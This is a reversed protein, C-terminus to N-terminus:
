PRAKVAMLRLLFEDALDALDRRNSCFYLRIERV